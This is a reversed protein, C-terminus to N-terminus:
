FIFQVGAQWGLFVSQRLGRRKGTTSLDQWISEWPFLRYMDSDKTQMYNISPGGFIEIGPVPRFAPLVALGSKFIDPSDNTFIGLSETTIETNVRFWPLINIHAGYGAIASAAKKSPAKHNYGLGLIGYLVRGGSRFTLATTGIENYGLAISMEGDRIINILGIPYDSHEAINVLGAVQVGDVDRAVNFLGAFQAGDVDRAVNALGAFQAGEFDGGVVNGLGGFQVSEADGGIVNGLGGFQAGEADGGITNGLGGFQAGKADGGIVNGLGAFQAGRANNKIINALGAAAFARENKSVGVLINLSFDNTYLQARNGNTNLPPFFSVQVTSHLEQDNQASVEVAGVVMIALLVASVFKTRNM